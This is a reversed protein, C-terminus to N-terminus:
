SYLLNMVSVCFWPRDHSLRGQILSPPFSSRVTKKRGLPPPLAISELKRARLSAIPGLM